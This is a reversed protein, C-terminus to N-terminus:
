ISETPTMRDMVHSAVPASLAVQGERTASQHYPYGPNGAAERAFTTRQTGSLEKLIQAFNELKGTKGQGQHCVNARNAVHIAELDYIARELNRESLPHTRKHTVQEAPLHLIQKGRVYKSLRM